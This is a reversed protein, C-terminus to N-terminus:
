ENKGGREKELLRQAIQHVRQRSLTDGYRKKIIDAVEQLKKGEKILHLIIINRADMRKRQFENVRPM